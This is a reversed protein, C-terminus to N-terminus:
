VMLIKSNKFESDLTIKIEVFKTDNRAKVIFCMMGMSRTDIDNIQVFTKNIVEAAAHLTLNQCDPTMMPGYLVDCSRIGM